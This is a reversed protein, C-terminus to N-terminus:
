SSSVAIAESPILKPIFQHYARGAIVLTSPLTVSGCEVVDFDSKCWLNSRGAFMVDRTMLKPEISRSYCMQLNGEREVVVGYSSGGRRACHILPRM